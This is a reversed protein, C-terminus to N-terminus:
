EMSLLLPIASYKGQKQKRRKESEWPSISNQMLTHLGYGIAAKVSQATTQILNIGENWDHECLFDLPQDITQPFFRSQAEPFVFVDVKKDGGNVIKAQFRQVMEMQHRVM